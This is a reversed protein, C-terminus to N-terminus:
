QLGVVCKLGNSSIAGFGFATNETTGLIVSQVYFAFGSYSPPLAPLTIPSWTFSPITMVPAIQASVVDLSALLTCNPMGVVVLPANPNSLGLIGLHIGATAPINSTTVNYVVSAAGQVPRSSATLRLPRKDATGLTISGLGSLDANGPDVSAGGPSYGVLHGIGSAGLPSM